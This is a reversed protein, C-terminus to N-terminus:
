RCLTFYIIASCTYIFIYVYEIFYVEGTDTYAKEWNTPLPGLQDEKSPTRNRVTEQDSTGTSQESGTNYLYTPPIRGGDNEGITLIEKDLSEGKVHFVRTFLKAIVNSANRIEFIIVTGDNPNDISAADDTKTAM